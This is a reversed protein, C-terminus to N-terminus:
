RGASRVPSACSRAALARAYVDTFQSAVYDWSFHSRVRVRADEGMRRRVERSRVLTSLNRALGAVDGSDSLLGTVGHEVIEPIGGVAFAVLPLESAMAELGAISTAEQLSPLVAIDSYAYALQMQSNALEPVVVCECTQSLGDIRQLQEQKYEDKGDSGAGIFLMQVRRQVEPDLSEVARLLLHIGNKPVFRRACLVVVKDQRFALVGEGLVLRAPKADRARHFRSPDVGNPIYTARDAPYGLEIAKSLLETSPATIRDALRINDFLRPHHAASSFLQLFKSSHNTWVMPRKSLPRVSAPGWLEHTHLVVEAQDLDKRLLRKTQYRWQRTRRFGIAGLRRIMVGDSEETSPFVLRTNRTSPAMGTIITVAHGNRALARSLEWVHVAVGGMRPLFNNTVQIIHM